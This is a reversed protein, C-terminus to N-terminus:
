VICKNTLRKAFYFYLLVNEQETWYVNFGLVKSYVCWCVSAFLLHMCWLVIYSAVFYYRSFSFFVHLAFYFICFLLLVLHIFLYLLACVFYLLLRLLTNYVFNIRSRFSNDLYKVLSSSLSASVFLFFCKSLYPFPFKTNWRAQVRISTSKYRKCLKTINLKATGIERDVGNGYLFLFKFINNVITKKFM